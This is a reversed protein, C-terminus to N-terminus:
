KFSIQVIASKIDEFPIEHTIIEKKKGVLEQLTISTEENVSILEGVIPQKEADNFTIELDRGIHKNYQRVFKLPTDVGPSSIELSYDGEPYWTEEDIQNRLTRNIKSIVNISVGNDGDIFIKYNNTPKIFIDVLFLESGEMIAELKQKIQEIYQSM